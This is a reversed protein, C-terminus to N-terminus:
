GRFASRMDPPDGDDGDDLSREREIEGLVAVAAIPDIATQGGGPGGSKAVNAAVAAGGFWRNFRAAWGDLRRVLTLLRV